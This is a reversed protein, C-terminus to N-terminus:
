TCLSVLLFLWIKTQYDASPFTVMETSIYIYMSYLMESYWLFEAEFILVAERLLEIKLLDM